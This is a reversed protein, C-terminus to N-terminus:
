QPKKGNNEKQSNSNNSQNEHANSANGNGQERPKTINPTPPKVTNAGQVEKKPQIAPKGEGNNSPSPKNDQPPKTPVPTLTPTPSPKAKKPTLIKDVQTKIEPHSNSLQKLAGETAQKIPYLPTNPSSALALGMFGGITVIVISLTLFFKGVPFNRENKIREFVDVLGEEHSIPPKVNLYINKLDEIGQEM